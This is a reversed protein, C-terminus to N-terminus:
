RKVAALDTKMQPVDQVYERILKLEDMLAEGLVERRTEDDMNHMVTETHPMSGFNEISLRVSTLTQNALADISSCSAKPNLWYQIYDSDLQEQPQQCVAQIDLWDKLM